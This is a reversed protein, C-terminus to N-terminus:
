SWGLMNKFSDDLFYEEAERVLDRAEPAADVELVMAKLKLFIQDACESVSLMIVDDRIIDRCFVILRSLLSNANSNWPVDFRHGIESVSLSLLIDGNNRGSTGEPRLWVVKTQNNIHRIPVDPISPIAGDIGNVSFACDSAIMAGSICAVHHLLTLCNEVNLYLQQCYNGIFITLDAAWYISFSVNNDKRRSDEPLCVVLDKVQWRANMPMYSNMGWEFKFVDHSTDLVFNSYMKAVSKMPMTSWYSSHEKWIRLMSELPTSENRWQEITIISKDFFPLMIQYRRIPLWAARIEPDNTERPHECYSPVVAYLTGSNSKSVLATMICRSTKRERWGVLEHQSKRGCWYADERLIVRATMTMNLLIQKGRFVMNVYASFWSPHHFLTLLTYRGLCSGHGCHRYTTNFPVFILSSSNSDADTLEIEM